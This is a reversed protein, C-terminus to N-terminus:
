LDGDFALEALYFAVSRQQVASTAGIAASVQKYNFTNNKQNNIFEGIKRCFEQNLRAPRSDKKHAM